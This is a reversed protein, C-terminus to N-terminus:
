ASVRWKEGTKSFTEPTGAISGGPGGRGAASPLRIRSSCFRYSAGSSFSNGCFVVNGSNTLITNTIAPDTIKKYQAAWTQSLRTSGRQQVAM